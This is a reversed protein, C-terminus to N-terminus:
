DEAEDPSAPVTLDGLGATRLFEPWRDRAAASLDRLKKVDRDALQVLALGVREFLEKKGATSMDLESRTPLLTEALSVASPDFGAVLAAQVAPPLPGDILKNHHRNLRVHFQWATAENRLEEAQDPDEGLRELTMALRQMTNLTDPHIEGLILARAPLVDEFLERAEQLRGLMLSSDALDHMVALTLPDEYPSRQNRLWALIRVQLGRAREYKGDEYLFRALAHKAFCSDRSEDDREVWRTRKAVVQELLKRAQKTRGWLAALESMAEITSPHDEGLARRRTALIQQRLEIDKEHIRLPGSSIEDVARIELSDTRQARLAEALLDGAARARVVAEGFLLGPLVLAVLWLRSTQVALAVILPLMPLAVAARFEAEARLRDYAGYLEQDRGLLRAPLLPLDGALAAVYADVDTYQEVLLRRVARPRSRDTAETLAQRVEEALRDGNLRELQDSLGDDAPLGDTVLRESLRDIVVERLLRVGRKGLAIPSDFRETSASPGQYFPKQRAPDLWRIFRAARRRVESVRISATTTSQSILALLFGSVAASLVGTVYALFSLAALVAPRGAASSIEYIGGILGDAEAARPIRTRLILWLFAIWLYGAALPARIERLGPLLSALM